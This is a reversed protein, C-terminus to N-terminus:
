FVFYLHTISQFVTLFGLMDGSRLEAGCIGLVRFGSILGKIKQWDKAM